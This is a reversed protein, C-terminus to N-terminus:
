GAIQQSVAHGCETCVPSVGVPYGCRLCQHRRSRLTRRTLVCLAIALFPVLGLFVTNALFGLWMPQLPLWPRNDIMHWVGVNWDLRADVPHPWRHGELAKFPWGARRREVCCRLGKEPPYQPLMIETCVGPMPRSFVYTPGDHPYESPAHATWWDIQVQTAPGDVAGPTGEASDDMATIWWALIINTAVGFALCAGVTRRWLSM